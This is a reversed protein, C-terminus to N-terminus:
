GSSAQLLERIDDILGSEMRVWLDRWEDDGVEVATYQAEIKLHCARAGCPTVRVYGVYDTVPLAGGDIVRYRYAMDAEDIWELRERVPETGELFWWKIAGPQSGPREFEVKKFLSRGVLRASGEWSICEWVARAPAAIKATVTATGMVTLKEPGALVVTAHDGDARAVGDGLFSSAAM